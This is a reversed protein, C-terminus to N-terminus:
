EAVRVWAEEWVVSLRCDRLVQRDLDKGSCSYRTYVLGLARLRVNM